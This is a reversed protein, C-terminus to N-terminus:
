THARLTEGAVAAFAASLVVFVVSTIRILRSLRGDPSVRASWRSGAARTSQSRALPCLHIRIQVRITHTHTHTHTNTHATPIQIACSGAAQRAARQNCEGSGLLKLLVALGTQFGYQVQDRSRTMVSAKMGSATLPRYAVARKPM